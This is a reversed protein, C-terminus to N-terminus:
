LPLDVPHSTASRVSASSLQRDLRALFDRIRRRNAGFDAGATRSASVVDVRTWGAPDLGICVRVDDVRRRIRTEAEAEIVGGSADARLVRWGHMGGDALAIIASWIRDFPISYTRGRLAPDISDPDTAARNATLNRIPGPGSMSAAMGLPVRRGNVFDDASVM